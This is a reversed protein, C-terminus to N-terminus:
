LSEELRHITEMLRDTAQQAAERLDLDALDDLPISPGFAV